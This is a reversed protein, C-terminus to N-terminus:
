GIRGEAAAFVPQMENEADWVMVKYAAAGDPIPVDKKLWIGGDSLELEETVLSLLRRRQADQYFAIHCVATGAGTRSGDASVTLTQGDPNVGADLAAATTYAKLTLNSAYDNSIDAWQSPYRGRQARVPYNIFSEGSAVAAQSMYDSATAAEIAFHATETDSGEAAKEAYTLLTLSETTLKVPQQLHLTYYGPKAFTVYTPDSPNDAETLRLFAPAGSTPVAAQQLVAFSYTTNAEPVFLGIAELTEVQQTERDFCNAGWLTTERGIGLGQSSMGLPDHLYVNDYADQADYLVTAYKGIHKDAYSIYFYGSSGFEEGQSARVIWAGDTLGPQHGVAFNDAAFTDDWGVITVYANPTEATGDYYYAQTQANYYPNLGLRSPDYAYYATSVAGHEMLARKIDGCLTSIYEQGNQVMYCGVDASLYKAAGLQLAQQETGGGTDATGDARQVPGSGRAFYAAAMGRTGDTTIDFTWSDGAQHYLSQLMHQESFAAPQGTEQIVASEASAAAAFAWSDGEDEQTRVPNLPLRGETRLDFQAPLDDTSALAATEQRLLDAADRVIPTEPYVAYATDAAAETIIMPASEDAEAAAAAGSVACSLLALSLALSLVRKM